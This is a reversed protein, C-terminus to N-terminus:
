RESSPDLFVVLFCQACYPRRRQRRGGQWGFAAPVTLVAYGRGRRVQAIMTNMVSTSQAVEIYQELPMWQCESIETPDAQIEISLPRMECVVYIDSRGFVTNHQHRFGVVSEFECRV